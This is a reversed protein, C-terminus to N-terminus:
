GLKVVVTQAAKDHLCQQLPKDWLQWLGDLLGLIGVLGAAVSQVLWRKVMHNRSLAETPAVPIVWLKMVKKGVTQGAHRLQYEVLYLYSLLLSFAFTVIFLVLYSGLFVFPDPDTGAEQATIGEGIVVMFFVVMLPIFIVMSIATIILTDLLYALLRDGFSALPQGNPALAPPIPRWQGYPPPPPTYSM